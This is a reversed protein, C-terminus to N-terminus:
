CLMLAQQARRCRACARQQQLVASRRARADRTVAGRCARAGRMDARERQAEKSPARAHFYYFTSPMAFFTSIFLTMLIADAAYFLPLLAFAFRLPM